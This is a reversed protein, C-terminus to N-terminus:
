YKEKLLLIFTNISCDLLVGLGENLDYLPSKILNKTGSTECLYSYQIGNRGISGGLDGM